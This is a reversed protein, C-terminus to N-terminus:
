WIHVDANKALPMLRDVLKQRTFPGTRNGDLAMYWQVHDDAAAAPAVPGTPRRRAAPPAPAFAGLDPFPDADPFVPAQALQTREENEGSAELRPHVGSRPRALAHAASAGGGGSLSPVGAVSPRRAERVVILNACTKCKVKLVKGRVREDPISYKTQCRDCVFKM